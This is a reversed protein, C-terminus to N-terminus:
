VMVRPVSTAHDREYVLRDGEYAEIRARVHFTGRRLHPQEDDGDAREVRGTGADRDLADRGPGLAPRGRPDDLGRPRDRGDGPRPRPRPDRRPRRRHRPPPPRHRHRARRPPRPEGPPAAGAPARAGRRGAPLCPRAPHRGPPGAARPPEDRDHGHRHRPGALALCPGTPPRSPSGCATATRSPTASTTSSSGCATASAPSSRRPHERSTATASTSCATPSRPGLQRRPSTTSGCPSFALPRDAALELEVAPAGCSRSRGRAARRRLGALRRRRRAPRAAARPRALDPVVRGGASASRRPRASRSGPRAAPARGWGTPPQPSAARSSRPRPGAPEAVWRGPATPDFRPAAADSTRCRPATPRSTWSRRHRRGEALPGVLAAGGAPLRHATRARRLAPVDHAWPGILAKRPGDCARRAPAARRQTYGDAWGGVALVPCRRDRRLGRVGLRAALLRRPAPARALTSAPRARARAARAVDRALARRRARTPRARPTPWCPRPGAASERQAPLRGHLPHRRRLPRRDLVAHRDGQAGAPPAGRGAARQLRGLLHGIMGVAGTCWPQAALWAIVELADDQEQPPYEDLMLGDSEGNGRMDVRVCAYGHGALYPHTLADRRATGDRKRYPLYELIAPVPRARRGGAALHARRPPHRRLAPHWLNEIERVPRPFSAPAPPPVLTM